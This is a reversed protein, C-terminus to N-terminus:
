SHVGDNTISINATVHSSEVHGRSLRHLGRLDDVAGHHGGEIGRQIGDSGLAGNQDQSGDGLEKEAANGTKEFARIASDANASILFKLQETLAAM